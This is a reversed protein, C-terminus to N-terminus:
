TAPKGFCTTIFSTWREGVCLRPYRAASCRWIYLTGVYAMGVSSLRPAGVATIFALKGNAITAAARQTAQVVIVLDARKGDAIVWRDTLGTARAPNRSILRWARALDLKGRRALVFAAQIMSPCYYDSTLM